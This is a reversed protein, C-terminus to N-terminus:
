KANDPRLQRTKELDRKIQKEYQAETLCRTRTHQKGNASITTEEIKIGTQRKCGGHIDDRQYVQQLSGDPTVRYHATYHIAAGSKGYVILLKRKRDIEPTGMYYDSLESLEQSKLLNGDETQLYIDDSWSGYPGQQGRPVAIDPRGDFNFDDVTVPDPTPTNGSDPRTSFTFFDAPLRHKRGNIQLLVAGEGSCFGERCQVEIGGQWGQPLKSLPLTETYAGLALVSLAAFLYRTAPM